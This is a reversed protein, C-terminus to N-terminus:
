KGDNIKQLRKCFRQLTMFNINHREAAKRLSCTGNLVKKAAEAFTEKPTNGRDTKKKYKRMIGTFLMDMQFNHSFLFVIPCTTVTYCIAGLENYCSVGHLAM